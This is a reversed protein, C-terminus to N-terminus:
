PGTEEGVALGAGAGAGAAAVLCGSLMACVVPILALHLLRQM